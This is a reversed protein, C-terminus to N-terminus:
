AHTLVWSSIADALVRWDPENLVEHLAGPRGNWTKDTSAASDFFARGSSLRAVPDKEGFTEYLPLRLECAKKLAGAQAKQTETFWRATAKKFVLPDRDYDAARAEDHTLDKGFLGSPIGLKPMMRSAAKGLLVKAAPVELALGFFPASLVLGRWPSPALIASWAAVLGGFSHGFLFCPGGQADSKVMRSLEGADDLFDGFRDCYGREGESRGHGRLDLAVSAIGVDAWADMVHVYRGAHDAYGHLVGLTAKVDGEPRVRIAFLSPGPVARQTVPSEEHIHPVFHVYGSGCGVNWDREVRSGVM